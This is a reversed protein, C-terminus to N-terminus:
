DSDKTSEEVLTQAEQSAVIAERLADIQANVHDSIMKNYGAIETLYAVVETVPM